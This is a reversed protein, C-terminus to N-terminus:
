IQAAALMKMIIMGTHGNIYAYEKGKILTEYVDRFIKENQEKKDSWNAYSDMYVIGGCPPIHQDNLHEYNRNFLVLDGAAMIYYGYPFYKALYEEDYYKDYVPIVSIDWMDELIYKKDDISCNYQNNVIIPLQFLKYMRNVTNNETSTLKRELKPSLFINMNKKCGNVARVFKENNIDYVKHLDILGAEKMNKLFTVDTNNDSFYEYYGNTGVDRKNIFEVEVLTSVKDKKISAIFVLKKPGGYEEDDEFNHDFTKMVRQLKKFEEDQGVNKSIKTLEEEFDREDEYNKYFKFFQDQLEEDFETAYTNNGTCYDSLKSIIYIYRKYRCLLVYILKYRSSIKDTNTWRIKFTGVKSTSAQTDKELVIYTM